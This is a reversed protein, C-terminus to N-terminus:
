CRSSGRRCAASEPAPGTISVFFPVLSRSLPQVIAAALKSSAVLPAVSVSVLPVIPMPATTSVKVPPVTDTVPVTWLKPVSNALPELLTTRIVLPATTV